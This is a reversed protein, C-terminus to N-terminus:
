RSKRAVLSFTYEPAQAPEEEHVVVLIHGTASPTGILDLIVVLAPGAALRLPLTSLDIGSVGDEPLILTGMGSALGVLRVDGFDGDFLRCAVIVGTVQVAPCRLQCRGDTDVRFKVRLLQTTM